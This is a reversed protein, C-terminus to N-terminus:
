SPSSVRRLREWLGPDMKLARGAQEIWRYTAESIALGSEDIMYILHEFAIGAEGHRLYDLVITEGDLLGAQDLASYPLPVGGVETFAREMLVTVESLAKRILDEVDDM